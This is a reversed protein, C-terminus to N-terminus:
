GARLIKCLGRSAAGGKSRVALGNPPMPLCYHQPIPYAPPFCHSVFVCAGAESASPRLSNPLGAPAGGEAAAVCCVRVPQRWGVRAGRALGQARLCGPGQLGERM